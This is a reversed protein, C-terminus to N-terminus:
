GVTCSEASSPPGCFASPNPRSPDQARRYGAEPTLIDLKQVFDMLQNGIQPVPVDLIQGFPLDDAIHEVTHRQVRGQSRVEVLPPPREGPSSDEPVSGHLADRAGGGKVTRTATKQNCLVGSATGVKGLSHHTAKALVMQVTMQEHPPGLAANAM